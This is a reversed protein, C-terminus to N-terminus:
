YNLFAFLNSIETQFLCLFDPIPMAPFLNNKGFGTEFSSWEHGLFMLRSLNQHQIAARSLLAVAG